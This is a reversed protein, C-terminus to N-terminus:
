RLWRATRRQLVQYAITLPVVIVILNFALAAALGDGNTIVNGSLLTDIQLTTISLSGNTLASATAFASISSCFLLVTSGIFTPALVPGAVYRWYQTRTAGLNQAAELWQPRLGELAPTMVLVMLPVLFYLYVLEVGGLSYLDFGLDDQLSLGFHDQLQTTLVGASGVVAVFMFALLVGGFNALVASATSVLDKVLPSAASVIAQALVLGLVASALSTILALKLSHELAALYPGRLSARWNAGTFTSVKTQPDTQRFAGWLLVGTPVALFVTVYGLFPVLGLVSLDLRRRSRVPPRVPAIPGVVPEITPLDVLGDPASDRGSTSSPEPGADPPATRPVLTVRTPSLVVDYDASGEVGTKAPGAPAPDGTTSRALRTDAGPGNQNPTTVQQGHEAV